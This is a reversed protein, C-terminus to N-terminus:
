SFRKELLKFREEVSMRQPKKSNEPKNSSTADRRPFQSRALDLSAKRLGDLVSKPLIQELEEPSKSSLWDRLEGDLAKSELELVRAAPLKDKNTSLSAIMREVIRATVRTKAAEPLSKPYSKLAGAIETDIEQYAVQQAQLRKGEAEAKERDQLKKDLEEARREAMIRRKEAEPLQEFELHELLYNEALERFNDPGVAEAIRKFASIDKNKMGGVLDEVSKRLSAAEQFRREAVNSKQAEAVLRDYDWEVEKGDLKVKHKTGKFDLIQPQPSTTATSESSQNGGDVPAVTPAQESM